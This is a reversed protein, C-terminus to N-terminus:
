QVTMVCVNSSSPIIYSLYWYSQTFQLGWESSRRNLYDLSKWELSKFLNLKLPMYFSIKEWNIGLISFYIILVFYLIVSFDVWQKLFDIRRIRSRWSSTPHRTWAFTCRSLQRCWWAICCSHSQPCQTEFWHCWLAPLSCLRCHLPWPIMGLKDQTHWVSFRPTCVVLGLHSDTKMLLILFITTIRISITRCGICLNLSSFYQNILMMGMQM